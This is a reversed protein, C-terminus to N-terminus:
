QDSRPVQLRRIRINRFDVQMAPGSHIQLAIVGTRAIGDDAERYDVTKLGNIKLTM